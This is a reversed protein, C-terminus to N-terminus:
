EGPICEAYGSEADTWVGYRCVVAKEGSECGDATPLHCNLNGDAAYSCCILNDPNGTAVHAPFLTTLIIIITLM